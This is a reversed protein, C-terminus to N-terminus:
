DEINIRGKTIKCSARRDSFKQWSGKLTKGFKAAFKKQKVFCRTGKISIEIDNQLKIYEAKKSVINSILILSDKYSISLFHKYGKPDIFIATGGTVPLMIGRGGGGPLYYDTSHYFVENLLYLEIFRTHPLKVSCPWRNKRDCVQFHLSLSVSISHDNLHKLPIEAVAFSVPMFYFTLCMLIRFSM